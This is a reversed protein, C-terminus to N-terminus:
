KLIRVEPELMVGFRAYVREIVLEILELVDRSNAGGKNIIFGAHKVSVEAGGVSLGKLGADEILKGAYYGEPRKFTSGASPYNLPQKERRRLSFDEMRAKALGDDPELEFVASLIISDPYSFASRRYGMDEPAVERCVLEGDMILRVSKIVNKIEGNYAGANMAVAGGVTGPIGAAWELGMFGSAVSFKAAAALSAGAGCYLMNGDMRYQEFDDALKIFLTDLGEDPILLNSGNGIVFYPAGLENACRILSSVEGETGPMALIAVAGGTRFTTLEAGMANEKFAIGSEIMMRKLEDSGTM